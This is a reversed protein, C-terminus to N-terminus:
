PNQTFTDREFDITFSRNGSGMDGTYPFPTAGDRLYQYAWKM